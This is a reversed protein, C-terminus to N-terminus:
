EYDDHQRKETIQRSLGEKLCKLKIELGHKDHYSNNLMIKICNSFITEKMIMDWKQCM